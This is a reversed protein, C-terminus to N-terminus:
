IIFVQKQYEVPYIIGIIKLLHMLLSDFTTVSLSLLREQCFFLVTIGESAVLPCQKMMNLRFVVGSESADSTRM